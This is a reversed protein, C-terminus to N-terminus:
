LRTLPSASEDRLAFSNFGLESNLVVTKQAVAHIGILLLFSSVFVYKM